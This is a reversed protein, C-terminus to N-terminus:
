YNTSYLCLTCKFMQPNDTGNSTALCATLSPPPSKNMLVAEQLEQNMLTVAKKGIQAPPPWSHRKRFSRLTRNRDVGQAERERAGRSTTQQVELNVRPKFKAHTAFVAEVYWLASTPLTTEYRLVGNCFHASLQPAFRWARRLSCIRPRRPRPRPTANLEM